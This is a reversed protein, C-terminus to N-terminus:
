GRVEEEVRRGQADFQTELLECFPGCNTILEEYSGQAILSGKDLLLILDANRVTSIRQAIVFSTRNQM